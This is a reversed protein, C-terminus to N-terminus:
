DNKKAHYPHSPPPSSVPASDGPILDEDEDDPLPRDYGLERLVREVIEMDERTAGITRLMQEATAPPVIHKKM